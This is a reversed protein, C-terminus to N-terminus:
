ATPRAEAFVADGAPIQDATTVTLCDAFTQREDRDALEADQERAQGTLFNAFDLRERDARM